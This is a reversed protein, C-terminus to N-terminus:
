GHNLIKRTERKYLEVNPQDFPNLDLLYALYVTEIMKWQMFQGLAYASPEPLEIAIFPRLENRYAVKVGRAIADMIHTLSLGQTNTDLSKLEPAPPITIDTAFSAYTVFTTFTDYPGGLYLQALSHLDTSGIAVTPTIGVHVVRGAKNKEKGLSEGVLQRYWKGLSELESAFLFTNHIFINKGYQGFITTASRAAPNEEVSLELCSDTIDRAGEHLQKIDIGLMALPFLGVASMVSYRGGVNAPIALAAFKEQQAVQWLKSNEDTTAVVYKHYSDKKYKKLLDLLLAANAVTETTTGSKSVINLIVARDQKLQTEMIRVLATLMDPDTTDAFYVKLTANLENYFIGNLADHVAKTGLNSGGIGIVILMSPELALTAQAVRSVSQGLADDYPLNLFAYPSDYNQTRAQRLVNAEMELHREAIEFTADEILAADWDTFQIVKKVPKV